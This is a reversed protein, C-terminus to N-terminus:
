SWESRQVTNRSSFGEGSSVKKSTSTVLPKRIHCRIMSVMRHLVSEVGKVTISMGPLNAIASATMGRQYYLWFVIRDRKAIEDHESAALFDDIEKLLHNRELWESDQVTEAHLESIPEEKARGGRKSTKRKRFYDNAAAASVVKLFAVFSEQHRPEFERLIKREDECLKLFVDQAIDDLVAPSTEGWLRGVRLVSLAIPRSFRRVFEEWEVVGGQVACLRALDNSSIESIVV